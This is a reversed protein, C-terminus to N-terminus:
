AHKAEILNEVLREVRRVDAVAYFGHKRTRRDGDSDRCQESRLILDGSGDPHETREFEPIDAAPYSKM